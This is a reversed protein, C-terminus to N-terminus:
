QSNTFRHTPRLEYYVQNYIRPGHRAADKLTNLEIESWQLMQLIPKRSLEYLFFSAGVGWKQDIALGYGYGKDPRYGSVHSSNCYSCEKNMNLPHFRTEMRGREIFHGNDFEEPQYYGGCVICPLASDRDLRIMKSAADDLNRIAKNKPNNSRQKIWSRKMEETYVREMTWDRM